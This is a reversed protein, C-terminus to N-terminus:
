KKLLGYKDLLQKFKFYEDSRKIDQIDVPPLRNVWEVAIRLMEKVDSDVKNKNDDFVVSMDDDEEVPTKDQDVWLWSFFRRWGRIESKNDEYTVDVEEEVIIKEGRMVKDVIEMPVRDDSPKDDKVVEVRPVQKKIKKILGEKSKRRNIYAGMDKNFDRQRM